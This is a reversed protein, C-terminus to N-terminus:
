LAIRWRVSAMHAPEGRAAARRATLLFASERVCLDRRDAQRHAPV